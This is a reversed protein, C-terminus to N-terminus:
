VSLTHKSKMLSLSLEYTNVASLVATGGVVIWALILYNQALVRLFSGEHLTSQVSQVASGLYPLLMAFIVGVVFGVFAAIAIAKKNQARLEANQQRILEVTYINHKLKDMFLSDSSLEPNFDKFLDHLTDEEM